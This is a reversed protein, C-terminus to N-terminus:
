FVQGFLRYSLPKCFLLRESQIREASLSGAVEQGVKALRVLM